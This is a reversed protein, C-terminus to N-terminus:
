SVTHVMDGRPSDASEVGTSTCALSAGTASPSVGERGLEVGTGERCEGGEWSSMAALVGPSDQSGRCAVRGILSPAQTSGEAAPGRPAGGTFWSDGGLACDRQLGGTISDCKPKEEMNMLRRTTRYDQTDSMVQYRHATNRNESHLHVSGGERAETAQSIEGGREVAKFGNTTSTCNIHNGAVPGHKAALSVGKSSRQPKATKLHSHTFSTPLLKTGRPTILM